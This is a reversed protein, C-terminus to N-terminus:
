RGRMRLVLFTVAVLAAVVGMAAGMTQGITAM